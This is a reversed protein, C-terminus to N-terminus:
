EIVEDARALLTSPVELGLAKATKLNIVLDFRTPQEVPIDGPKTGRLIRDVIGAARRFLDPVNPGYFILGGADVAERFGSITPVRTDLALTVIDVRSADTLPDICVYLAEARGKTTEITPAIDEARRIDFTAVDLGLARATTQVETMERMAAPYGVNAMIALTRLGPVIERLLEVRKGVLDTAQV